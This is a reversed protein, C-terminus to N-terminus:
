KFVPRLIIPLKCDLHNLENRLIDSSKQSKFPLVINVFDENSPVQEQNFNLANFDSKKFISHLIGEPYKLNRFISKIKECEANFLVESSCLKSARNVMTKLLGTKYRQDVHSNFHTLMGKDTQKRHVKTAIQQCNKTLLMGLFPLKDNKQLEMTFSISDHVNNLENLFARAASEDKVIAVTDDVYRKYFKPFTSNDELRQELHCMFVNALLPGLPSGMAVGDIQEYLTGNFQFLQDKTCASILEKLDTRTMRIGHSEYMWDNEFARDVLIDITEDLPVNTFLSSVDYSVMFEPGTLSTSQIEKAFEFVDSITHENSALPKLIKDLWKALLYNYSQVASLVPRMKLEEKHTKPLGYLHPLRSGKPLLKEAVSEPLIRKILKSVSKEKELLPHDRKPPRGRKKKKKEKDYKVFKEEM